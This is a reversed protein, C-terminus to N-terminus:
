GRSRAAAFREVLYPARGSQRVVHAIVGMCRLLLEDGRRQRLLSLAPTVVWQVVFRPRESPYYSAQFRLGNRVFYYGSLLGGDLELSRSVRHRIRSPTAVALTVGASVARASWDSDEFILFYSQDFLGVTDWVERRAAICCGTLFGSSRLADSMQTPPGMPEDAQLHRPWGHDVVGGRFWSLGPADFFRIDPSAALSIGERLEVVLREMADPEVITDNNLVIIMEAGRRMALRLGVNNGEAFGLNTGTSVVDDALATRLIRDASDDSSGNDIVIVHLSITSERLSRLCAITDDRGNWNLVIVCPKNIASHLL